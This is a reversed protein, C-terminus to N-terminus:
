CSAGSQNSKWMTKIQMKKKGRQITVLYVQNGVNKRILFKRNGLKDTDTHECGDFENLVKPILAFDDPTIDLQGRQKELDGHSRKIHRIDSDTIFVLELGESFFPEMELALKRGVDIGIKIRADSGSWVSRAAGVLLQEEPYDM